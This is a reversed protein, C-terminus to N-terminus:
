HNHLCRLRRFRIFRRRIVELHALAYQKEAGNHCDAKGFLIDQPSHQSLIGGVYDPENRSFVDPM